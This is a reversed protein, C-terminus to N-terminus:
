GNPEDRCPVGCCEGTAPGGDLAINACCGEEGSPFVCLCCSGIVLRCVPACADAGGDTHTDSTTADPKPPTVAPAGGAATLAADVTGRADQHAGIGSSDVSCAALLLVWVFRSM